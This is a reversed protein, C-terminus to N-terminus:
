RQSSPLAVKVLLARDPLVLAWRVDPDPWDRRLLHPYAVLNLPEPYPSGEPFLAAMAESQVPFLPLEPLTRYRDKSPGLAAEVAPWDQESWRMYVYLNNWYSVARQDIANPPLDLAAALPAPDVRAAPPPEPAPVPPPDFFSGCAVLLLWVTM